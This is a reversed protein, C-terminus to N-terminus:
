SFGVGVGITASANSIPRTHETRVCAVAYGALGLGLGLLFVGWHFPRPMSGAMVNRYDM